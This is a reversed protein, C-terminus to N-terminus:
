NDLSLVHLYIKKLRHATHLFTFNHEVLFRANSALWTGYNSDTLLSDIAQFFSNPSDYDDIVLGNFNHLVVESNGGRNTTILPVSAAMAEYNVRALPENWQSSCICIDAMLFINPVENAPIFKTFLIHESIPEAFNYLQQVYDNVSNDSFWRGGAIVLVADPYKQIVEKMAQILLHPGKSKSLRGVFLIIKKGVLNYKEIYFKKIELRKSSDLPPYQQLDVGSYITSIKDIASPFRDIVQQKIFHSVTSIHSVSQIIEEGQERTVKRESFMENHLSLVIQSYPSADKYLLVHLPRNCVHIIDFSQKSLTYAVSYSYDRRPFRTYTINDVVENNELLEDEISFITIDFTESLYPIVGDLMMQIAGGRIAPAPLKETCIFAIKM